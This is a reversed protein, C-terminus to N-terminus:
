RGRSDKRLVECLRDWKYWVLIIGMVVAVGLWFWFWGATMVASWTLESETGVTSALLLIIVVVAILPGYLWRRRTLILGEAIKAYEPSRKLIVVMFQLALGVVVVAEAFRAGFAYTHIAVYLLAAVGLTIDAVMDFM